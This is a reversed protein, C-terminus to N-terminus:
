SASSEMLVSIKLFLDTPHGQHLLSDLKDFNNKLSRCIFHILSFSQQIQKSMSGLQEHTIYKSKGAIKDTHDLDCYQKVENELSM